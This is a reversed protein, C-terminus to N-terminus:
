TAEEIGDTNVMPDMLDTLRARTSDPLGQVFNQLRAHTKPGFVGDILLNQANDDPFAIGLLNLGAQIERTEAESLDQNTATNLLEEGLAETLFQDVM